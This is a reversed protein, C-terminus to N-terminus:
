YNENKNQFPSRNFFQEGKRSVPLLEGKRLLIFLHRSTKKHRCKLLEAAL